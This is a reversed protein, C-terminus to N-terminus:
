RLLFGESTGATRLSEVVSPSDRARYGAESSERWGLKARLRASLAGFHVNKPVGKARGELSNFTGFSRVRARLLPVGSELISVERAALLNGSEIGSNRM